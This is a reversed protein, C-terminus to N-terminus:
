KYEDTINRLYVTTKARSTEVKGRYGSAATSIEITVSRTVSGPGATFMQYSNSSSPLYPNTTLVGSALVRTKAGTQLTINGNAYRIHRTVGDWTSPIIYTGQSNKQPYMFVVGMGDADVSAGMAQRLQDCVLRVAMQAQTEAGLRNMGKAWSASGNFLVNVVGALAFTTITAATLLELTTAGRRIRRPMTKM